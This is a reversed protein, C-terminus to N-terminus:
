SGKKQCEENFKEIEKRLEEQEEPSLTPQHEINFTEVIRMMYCGGYMFAHRFLDNLFRKNDESKNYYEQLGPTGMFQKFFDGQWEKADAKLADELQHGSVRLTNLLALAKGSKVRKEGRENYAKIEKETM